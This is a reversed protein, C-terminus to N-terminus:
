FNVRLTLSMTSIPPQVRPNSNGPNALDGEPDPVMVGGSSYRQAVWLTAVERASFSLSARDAGFSGSVSTPLNYMFGVERLKWFSADYWKDDGGGTAKEAVFTPDCECRAQYSNNYQNASRVTNMNTRGYAGDALFRITVANNFLVLQPNVSLKYTYFAPGMLIYNTTLL